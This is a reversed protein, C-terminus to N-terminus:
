AGAARGLGAGFGTLAGWSLLRDLGTELVDEAVSL